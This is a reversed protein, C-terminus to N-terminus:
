TKRHLAIFLPGSVQDLNFMFALALLDIINYRLSLYFSCGATRSGVPTGTVPPGAIDHVELKKFLDPPIYKGPHIEGVQHM